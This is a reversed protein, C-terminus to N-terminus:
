LEERRLGYRVGYSIKDCHRHEFREVLRMGIKEAVGISPLDRLVEAGLRDFAYAALAGV